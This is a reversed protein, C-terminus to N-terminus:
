RDTRTILGYIYLLRLTTTPTRDGPGGPRDGFICALRDEIDNHRAYVYSVIVCSRSRRCRPRPGDPPPRRARATPARGRGPADRRRRQAYKYGRARGALGVVGRRGSDPSSAAERRGNNERHVYSSHEPATRREPTPDRERKRHM